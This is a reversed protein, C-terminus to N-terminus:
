NESLRDKLIAILNKPITALLNKKMKEKQQEIVELIQLIDGKIQSLPSPHFHVFDQNPHLYYREYM